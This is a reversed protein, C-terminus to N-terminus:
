GIGSPSRGADVLATNPLDKQSTLV